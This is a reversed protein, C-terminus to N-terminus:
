PLSLNESAVKQPLIRSVMAEFQSEFTADIEGFSTSLLCGGRTITPDQVIRLGEKENMSVPVQDSHTKLYQYDAPHLRLVIEGRDTVYRFADRLVSVIADEHFLATRRFLRRGIGLMLRVIEREYTQFAEKKQREIESLVNELQHIVKELRKMGLEKGDKEGQQFGKEYAEKEILLAKEKVEKFMKTELDKLSPHFSFREGGPTLSPWAVEFSAKPSAHSFLLGPIFKDSM